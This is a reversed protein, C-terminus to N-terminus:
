VIVILIIMEFFLIWITTFISSLENFLSFIFLNSFKQALSLSEVSLLYSHLLTPVNMMDFYGNSVLFSIFRNIRLGFCSLINLKVLSGHM